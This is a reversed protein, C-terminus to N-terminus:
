MQLADRTLLVYIPRKKKKEKKFRNLWEMDKIPFNLGNVNLTIIFLYTNIAM